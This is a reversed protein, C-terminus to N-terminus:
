LHGCVQTLVAGLDVVRPGLRQALGGGFGQGAQLLCIDVEFEAVFGGPSGSEQIPRSRRKGLGVGGPLSSSGAAIDQPPLYSSVEPPGFNGVADFGTLM